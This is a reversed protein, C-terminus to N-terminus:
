GDCALPTRSSALGAAFFALVFFAVVFFAVEV